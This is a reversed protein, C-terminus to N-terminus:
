GILRPATVGGRVFGEGKRVWGAKACMGPSLRKGRGMMMAGDKGEPLSGGKEDRHGLQM